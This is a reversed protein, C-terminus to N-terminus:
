PEHLLEPLKVINVAIRQAESAICLQMTSWFTHHSNQPLAIWGEARTLLM